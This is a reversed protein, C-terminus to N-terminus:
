LVGQGLVKLELNAFTESGYASGRIEVAQGTQPKTQFDDANFYLTERGDHLYLQHWGADYCIVVGRLNLARGSPGKGPGLSKLERLTTIEQTARLYDRPALALWIVAAVVFGRRAKM